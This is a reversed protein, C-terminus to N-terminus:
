FTMVFESLNKEGRLWNLVLQSGIVGAIKNGNQIIGNALEFDRQCSGNEVNEPITGMMKELTNSKSKTFVAISRGESRLDIWYIDPNKEATEFLMKRFKTNDVASIICDFKTLDTPKTLRKPISGFGFRAALSEVKLDTIDETEFHQYPINKTDVTDDDAFMIEANGLQTHEDLKYLNYALWSGIGGAGVVLIRRAM